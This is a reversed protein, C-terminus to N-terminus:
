AKRSEKLAKMAKKHEKLIGVAKRQIEVASRDFEADEKALTYRSTAEWWRPVVKLHPRGVGTFSGFVQPIRALAVDMWYQMSYNTALAPRNYYWHEKLPGLVLGVTISCGEIYGLLRTLTGVSGMLRNEINHQWATLVAWSVAVGFDFAKWNCSPGSYLNGMGRNERSFKNFELCSSFGCAGCNWDMESQTIDAGLEVIVPPNGADYAGKIAWYDPFQSVQIKSFQEMLRILPLLDDGSIVVAKVEVRETVQPAKLASQVCHAAVDILKDYALENGDYISM